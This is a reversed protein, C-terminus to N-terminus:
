KGPRTLGLKRLRFQLTSRKMGPRVAAGNNTEPM